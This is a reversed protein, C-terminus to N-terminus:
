NAGEHLNGARPVNSATYGPLIHAHFTVLGAGLGVSLLAILRLCCSFHARLPSVKLQSLHGQGSRRGPFLDQLGIGTSSHLRPSPHSTDKKDQRGRSPDHIDKKRHVSAYLHNPFHGMKINTWLYLFLSNGPRLSQRENSDYCRNNHKNSM